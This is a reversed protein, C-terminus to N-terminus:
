QASSASHQIYIESFEGELVNPSYPDAAFLLHRLGGGATAHM